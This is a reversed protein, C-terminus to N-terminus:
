IQPFEAVVPVSWQLLEPPYTTDKHEWLWGVLIFWWFHFYNRQSSCLESSCFLWVCLSSWKRERSVSQTGSLKKHRCSIIVDGSDHTRHSQTRLTVNRARQGASWRKRASPSSSSFFESPQVDTKLQGIQFRSWWQFENCLTSSVTVSLGGGLGDIRCAYEILFNMQRLSKVNIHLSVTINM